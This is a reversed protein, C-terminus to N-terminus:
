KDFHAWAERILAEEDSPADGAADIKRRKEVLGDWSGIVRAPVGAVVSNPPVDKTVVSGAAIVANPGIKVDPLITSYAGIFVNDMVEICGYHKRFPKAAEDEANAHNFVRYLIDHNIFNVNAAVAVNDHFRILKSNVPLTRPQFFFNKGAADFFRHKKAYATRKAASPILWFVARKFNSVKIREM